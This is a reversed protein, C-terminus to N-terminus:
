SNALMIHILMEFKMQHSTKKNISQLFHSKINEKLANEM